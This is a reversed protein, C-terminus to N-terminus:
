STWRFSRHVVFAGALTWVLLIGLSSVIISLDGPGLAARLGDALAASPLLSVVTAFPGPFRDPPIIVGGAMLLLLYIANALALTAEARLVGALALGWAAFAATGFVIVPVAWVVGGGPRWGLLLGVAAIILLQIAQVGLVALAKAALLGARSLPTTGLFKIAEGRRDFGTSIALATFASSMVALAMISPVLMELRAERGVVGLSVINTLGLGLLLAIPIILTLLLQEGNSMLLRWELGAQSRVIQATPAARGVPALSM